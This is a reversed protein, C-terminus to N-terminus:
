VVSKRDLSENANKNIFSCLMKHFAKKEAKLEIGKQQANLLEVQINDLDSQNAVGHKMMNTVRVINTQLDNQLLKNLQILENQLLYGFFLENIRKKLTYLESELQERKAKAEARTLARSARMDGGDWITQNIQAVIRYHDKSLKPINSGPMLVSFQEKDFPLRTVENQYSAQADISLQPLWGKGVNQLQFQESQKILGHQHILPYNDRALQYCQSLSLAEQGYALRTFGMMVLILISYLNRM